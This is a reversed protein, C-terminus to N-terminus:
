SSILSTWCCRGKLFGDLSARVGQKNQVNQPIARFLIQERVEGTGMDLGHIPLVNALKWEGPVEGTLWSQQYLIALPEPFVEAMEWLVQTHIGEPGM